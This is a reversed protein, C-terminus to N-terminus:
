VVVVNLCFSCNDTYKRNKLEQIKSKFIDIDDPINSTLKLLAKVRECPDEKELHTIALSTLLDKAKNSVITRRTSKFCVTAIDAIICKKLLRFCFLGNQERRDRKILAHLYVFQCARHLYCGLRRQPDLTSIESNGFPMNTMRLPLTELFFCEMCKPGGLQERNRKRLRPPDFPCKTSIKWERCLECYVRQPAIMNYLLFSEQAKEYSSTLPDVISENGETKEYSNKHIQMLSQLSSLTGVIIDGYSFFM